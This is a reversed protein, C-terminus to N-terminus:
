EPPLFPFRTCHLRPYYLTCLSYLSAFSTFFLAYSFVSILSYSSFPFCQLFCISIFLLCCHLSLGLSPLAALDRERKCMQTLFFSLSSFGTIYLVDKPEDRYSAMLLAHPPLVVDKYATQPDHLDVAAMLVCGKTFLSSAFETSGCYFTLINLPGTFSFM